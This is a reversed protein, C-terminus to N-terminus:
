EAAAMGPLGADTSASDVSGRPGGRGGKAPAASRMGMLKVKGPLNRTM